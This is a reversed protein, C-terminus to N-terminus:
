SLVEPFIFDGMIIFVNMAPFSPITRLIWIMIFTIENNQQM